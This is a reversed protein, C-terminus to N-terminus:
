ARNNRRSTYHSFKGLHHGGNEGIVGNGQFCHYV